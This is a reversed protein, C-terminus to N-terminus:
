FDRLGLEAELDEDDEFLKMFRAQQEERKKKQWRLYGVYLLAIFTVMGFCVLVIALASYKKTDDNQESSAPEVAPKADSPHCHSCVFTINFEKDKFHNYQGEPESSFNIPCLEWEDFVDDHKIQDEEYLGCRKCKSSELSTLPQWSEEGIFKYQHDKMVVDPLYVKNEGKCRFYVLPKGFWEHTRFITLSDLIVNGSGLVGAPLRM